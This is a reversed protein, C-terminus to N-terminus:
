KVLKTFNDRLQVQFARNANWSVEIDSKDAVVKQGCGLFEKDSKKEKRETAHGEGGKRGM